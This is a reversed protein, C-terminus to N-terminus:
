ALHQESIAYGPTGVKELAGLDVQVGDFFAAIQDGIRLQSVRLANLMVLINWEDHCGKSFNAGARLAYFRVFNKRLEEWDEEVNFRAAFDKDSALKRAFYSEIGATTSDDKLAFFQETDRPGIFYYADFDSGLNKDGDEVLVRTWMRMYDGGRPRPLADVTSRPIGLTEAHRYILGAGEKSEMQYQAPNLIWFRSGLQNLLRFQTAKAIEVNTGFFGGGRNSIPCSQYIVHRDDAKAREIDSKILAVHEDFLQLWENTLWEFKIPFGEVPYGVETADNNPM